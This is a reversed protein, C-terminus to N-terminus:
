SKKLVVERPPQESGERRMTLKIEDGAITGQLILKTDGSNGSFTLSFSIKDGEVKGEAIPMEGQPSAVVGTLKSGDQKFTYTVDLSSGDQMQFSNKWKGTIDAAACSVVMIAAVIAARLIAKRM